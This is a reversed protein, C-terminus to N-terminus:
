QSVTRMSYRSHKAKGSDYISTRTASCYRSTPSECDHGVTETACAGDIASSCQVCKRYTSRYDPYPVLFELHFSVYHITYIECRQQLNDNIVYEVIM